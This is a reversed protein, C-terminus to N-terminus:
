RSLQYTGLDVYSAQSKIGSCANICSFDNYVHSSKREYIPGYGSGMIVRPDYGCSNFASIRINPNPGTCAMFSNPRDFSPAM